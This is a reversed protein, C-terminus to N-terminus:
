TECGVGDGDRDLHPGYGADGRRVPAGGVERAETCNAFPTARSESRPAPPASSAPPQTSSAVTPPTSTITTTPTAATVTPTTTVTTTTTQTVESASGESGLAILGACCALTVFVLVVVGLLVAGASTKPQSQSM